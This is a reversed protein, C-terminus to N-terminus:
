RYDWYKSWDCDLCVIEESVVEENGGDYGDDVDDYDENFGSSTLKYTNTYSSTKEISVYKYIREKNCNPCYGLQEIDDLDICSTCIM